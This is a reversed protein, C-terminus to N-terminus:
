PRAESPCREPHECGYDRGERLLWTIAMILAVASLFGLLYPTIWDIRM